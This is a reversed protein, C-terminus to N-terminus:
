IEWMNNIGFISFSPHLLGLYSFILKMDNIYHYSNELIFGRTTVLQNRLNNLNSHM